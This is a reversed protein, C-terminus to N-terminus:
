AVIDAGYRICTAVMDAKLDANILHGHSALIRPIYENACQGAHMVQDNAHSVLLLRKAQADTLHHIYPLLLRYNEEAGRFSGSNQIITIAIDIGLTSDALLLAPLIDHITIRAPDCRKAQIASLFGPPLSDDIRLPIPIMQHAHFAAIGAEQICWDSLLYNASLLCICIKSDHLEQLIRVRWQESPRIDEHALFSDFGYVNLMRQLSGAIHRDATQYSIFVKTM